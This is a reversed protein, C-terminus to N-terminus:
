PEDRDWEDRLARVAAVADETAGHIPPLAGILSSFSALPQAKADSETEITIHVVAGDPLGDRLDEPLRSVPYATRVVRTM